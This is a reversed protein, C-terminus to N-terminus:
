AIRTGASLGLHPSPTNDRVGGGPFSNELHERITSIPTAQFAGHGMVRAMQEVELLGVSKKAKNRRVKKVDPARKKAAGGAQFDEKLAETLSQMKMTGVAASPDQALKREALNAKLSHPCTHHIRTPSLFLLLCRPARSAFPVEM